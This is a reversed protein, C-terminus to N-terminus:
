QKTVPHYSNKFNEEYSEELKKCDSEIVVPHFGDATTEVTLDSYTNQSQIEFNTTDESFKGCTDFNHFSNLHKELETLNPFSKECQECRNSNEFDMENFKRRLIDSESKRWNHKQHFIRCGPKCDSNCSYKEHIEKERAQFLKKRLNERQNSIEVKMESINQELHIKLDCTKTHIEM